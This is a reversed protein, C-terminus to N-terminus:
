VPHDLADRLAVTITATQVGNAALTTPTIAITSHGASAPGPVFSLLVTQTLTIGGTQDFARATVTQVGTSRATAEVQGQSNTTTIAQTLFLDQGTVRIHVVRGPLPHGFSDYLSATLTAYAVGDAIITTINATLQSAAPDLPGTNFVVQAQADLLVDDGYASITKIGPATSTLVATVLGGPGSLDVPVPGTALQGDVYVADGAVDLAVPKGPLPAGNRDRLTVTI